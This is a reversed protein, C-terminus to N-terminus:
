QTEAVFHEDNAALELRLDVIGVRRFVCIQLRLSFVKCDLAALSVVESSCSIGFIASAQNLM